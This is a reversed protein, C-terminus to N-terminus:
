SDGRIQIDPNRVIFRYMLVSTQFCYATEYGEPDTLEAYVIVGM